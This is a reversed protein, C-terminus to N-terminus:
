NSGINVRSLEQNVPQNASFIQFLYPLYRYTNGIQL